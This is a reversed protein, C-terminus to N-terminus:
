HMVPSISYDPNISLNFFRTMSNDVPAAIYKQNAYNAIDLLGKNDFYVSKDAASIPGASTPNLKYLLVNYGNIMVNFQNQQFLINANTAITQANAEGNNMEVINPDLITMSIGLQQTAIDGQFRLNQVRRPSIGLKAAIQETLQASIPSEFSEVMKIHLYLGTLLLIVLALTARIFLDM